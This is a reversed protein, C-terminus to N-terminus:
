RGTHCSWRSASRRGAAPAAARRPSWARRRRRSRARARDTGSEAPPQMLRADLSALRGGRPAPALSALAGPCRGRPPPSETCHGVPLRHDAELDVDLERGRALRERRRRDREPGLGVREGIRRHEPQGARQRDVVRAGGLERHPEPQRRPRPDARPRPERALVVEIRVQRLAVLDRLVVLRQALAARDVDDGGVAHDRHRQDPDVELLVGALVHVVARDRVDIEVAGAHREDLDDGPGLEAGGVVGGLQHARKCRRTRQSSMESASMSFPWSRHSALTDIRRRPSGASPVRVSSFFM